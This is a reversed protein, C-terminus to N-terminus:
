RPPEIRVHLGPDALHYTTRLVEHREVIRNFSRGLADVNLQGRIRFVAPRNLLSKEREFQQLFYMGSQGFSPVAGTTTSRREIRGKWSPQSPAEKLQAAVAAATPDAFFRVLTLEFGTKELLRVLMQTALVSDGGLQFFDDHIGIARDLHLVEKWLDCIMLELETTPAHFSNRDTESSTTGGLGLREALGIRQLKGTPGTPIREVFVIRRPVKFEVMHEAAYEQLELESTSGVGRLVVAAAVEEGLRADPMGFTVAQAVAPHGLLVEDVERPSIKEGGRNIIEKLRGTLFLYGDADLYGQDGTRFWGKHFANSNADPNNKYGPTVNPGRIAVEGATGAPLLNGTEDIVAINTGAALGVSRPKRELPPLPNTAMQHAAETMGYSEVVPVGFVRELDEMVPVPLAASCSRIFRLSTQAISEQSRHARALVAQHMTPVATYWTPRYEELWEFFRPAEFGPTCVVSGGAALSSLVAGVLGHIHFLPMINLCRDTATLGFSARIQEASAALNRHSLPVIKPRSTTGSTHLVLATDDQAAFDPEGDQFLPLSLAFTGSVGAGGPVLEIVRIGHQEAVKRAPTEMGHLVVLAKANLDSLYFEFEEARYAPNLPACTAGCAVSLFAVAMEPGNPLIVAVADNRLVRAGRLQLVTSRIQEILGAYSLPSKGCSLIAPQTRKFAEGTELLELVTSTAPLYM